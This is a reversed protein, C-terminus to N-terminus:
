KCTSDAADLWGNLQRKSSGPLVSRLIEYATKRDPFARLVFHALGIKSRDPPRGRATPAEQRAADLGRELAELNGDLGNLNPVTLAHLLYAEDICDLTRDDVSHLWDRLNGIAKVGADLSAHVQAASPTREELAQQEHHRTAMSEVVSLDVETLGHAVLRNRDAANLTFRPDRVFGGARFEKSRATM